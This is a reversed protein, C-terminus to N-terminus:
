DVVFTQVDAKVQEAMRRVPVSGTIETSSLIIKGSDDLHVKLTGPRPLALFARLLARDDPRMTFIARLVEIAGPVQSWHCIELVLSASVNGSVLSKIAERIEAQGAPTDSPREDSM